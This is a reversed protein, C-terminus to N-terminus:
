VNNNEKKKPNDEPRDFYPNYQMRMTGSPFNYTVFEEPHEDAYKSLQDMRDHFDKLLEKGKKTLTNINIVYRDWTWGPHVPDLPYLEQGKKNADDLNDTTYVIEHEEIPPGGQDGFGTIHHVIYTHVQGPYETLKM